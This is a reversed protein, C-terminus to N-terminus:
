DSHPCVRQTQCAYATGSLMKEELKLSEDREIKGVTDLKAWLMALQAQTM